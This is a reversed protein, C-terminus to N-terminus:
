LRRYLAHSSSKNRTNYLTRLRKFVCVKEIIEVSKHVVYFLYFFLCLM